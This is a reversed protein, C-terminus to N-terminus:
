NSQSQVPNLAFVPTGQPLVPDQVQVCPNPVYLPADHRYEWGTRVVFDQDSEQLLDFFFKTPM